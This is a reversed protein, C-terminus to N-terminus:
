APCARKEAAVHHMNINSCAYRDLLADALSLAAAALMHQLAVMPGPVAALILKCEEASAPVSDPLQTLLRGLIISIGACHLM